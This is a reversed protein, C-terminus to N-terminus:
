KSVRKSEREMEKVKKILIKRGLLSVGSHCKECDRENHYCLLGYHCKKSVRREPEIHVFMEEAVENILGAVKIRQVLNFNHYHHLGCNFDACSIYNSCHSVSM